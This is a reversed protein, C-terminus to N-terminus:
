QNIEECAVEHLLVDVVAPGNTLERHVNAVAVVQVERRRALRARRKAEVRAQGLHLVEVVGAVRGEVRVDAAEDLREGDLVPLGTDLSHRPRDARANGPTRPEERAQRCM